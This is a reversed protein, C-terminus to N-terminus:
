STGTLPTNSLVLFGEPALSTALMVENIDRHEIWAATRWREPSRWFSEIDDRLSVFHMLSRLQTRVRSDSYPRGAGSIVAQWMQEVAHLGIALGLERFALRHEGPMQLEGGRAYYKLGMLSAGLLTDLLTADPSEPLGGQPTLQAVRFADTLLGGLGLPDATAWEGRRIMAAYQSTEAELDPEAAAQALVAASARLEIATIYGDLPDHQGMSPVLPRTLDISMKWYMRRPGRTGAPLYSFAHFASHALERAWLNFRAHQTARAAQDLAHMWKSLYHFYQGDRDWEQREDFNEDAAREPLPKGIRLGGRTPHTEGEALSLGSIWGERRDGKRHQGLCHHVRDILELALERLQRKGTARALGLFNCVAFADTWLYRQMESGAAIGTREAFDQMLTVAADIRADPMTRSQSQAGVDADTSM